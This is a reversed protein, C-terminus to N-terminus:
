TKRLYERIGALWGGKFYREPRFGRKSVWRYETHQPSLRIEGGLHTGRYGIAFIRVKAGRLFRERREHRMFVTPEGLRYRVKQGLEERIKRAIVREFPIKFEHRQIRGGPIDWDGYRDKFIFVKGGRELFVKVAVYYLDRRSRAM